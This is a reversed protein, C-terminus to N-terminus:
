IIWCQTTVMMVCMWIPSYVFTSNISCRIVYLRGSILIYILFTRSFNWNGIKTSISMILQLVIMPVIDRYFHLCVGSVPKDKSLTVSPCSFYRPAVACNLINDSKMSGAHLLLTTGNCARHPGSPELLNLSGSKWSMRCMFTTLDDAERV